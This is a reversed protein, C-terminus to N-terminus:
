EAATKKETQTQAGLKAALADLTKNIKFLIRGILELRANTTDAAAGVRAVVEALSEVRGDDGNVVELMDRFSELEDKIAAVTYAVPEETVEGTGHEPEYRVTLLDRLVHVLSKEYDDDDDDIDVDRTDEDGPPFGPFEDDGEDVVQKTAAAAAATM